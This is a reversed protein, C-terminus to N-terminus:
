VLIVKGTRVAEDAAFAIAYVKYVEDISPESEIDEEIMKILYSFQEWTPKFKSVHNIMEYKNQEYNYYEILDGEEKHQTRDKRYTLKIRGKPGIFEKVDEYAITNGWGSEYYGISGDELKVCLMSYNYKNTDIDPETKACIGSVEVIKSQCFWQMIDLYHVGCDILPSTNNILELYRQWDMTHKNQVMRLVIPSGIAGNHIMEAIKGYTMNHRLIHGVLVKSKSAKVLRVFEQAEALVPTMPKECLVHKGHELCAKLIQLHTSPYTAIIVIDVCSDCLYQSYDTGWSLAGYKKMFAQAREPDHDVVGRIEINDRFYIEELHAAGMYGCGVLLIGYKKVIVLGWLKRYIDIIYLL